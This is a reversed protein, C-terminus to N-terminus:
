NREVRGGRGGIRKARGEGGTGESIGKVRGVAVHYFHFAVAALDIKSRGDEAAIEWTLQCNKSCARQKKYRRALFFLFM